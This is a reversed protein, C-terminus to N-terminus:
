WKVEPTDLLALGLRTYTIEACKFRDNATRALKLSVLLQNEQSPFTHAPSSPPESQLIVSSPGLLSSIQALGCISGRIHDSNRRTGTGGSLLQQRTVNTTM